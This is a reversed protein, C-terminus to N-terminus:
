NVYELDSAAPVEDSFRARIECIEDWGALLAKICVPDFHSGAGRQLHEMAAELTWAQKYPRASTLADFVDAVAVIRGHLPIAEGALGDPYGSGDYKEHHTRSVVAACRLLPSVSDCLIEYGIRAHQKMIEFEEPTLRGPKLLIYDPTGVKGIDHM